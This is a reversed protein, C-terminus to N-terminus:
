GIVGIHMIRLLVLYVHMYVYLRRKVEKYIIHVSDENTYIDKISNYFLIIIVIM